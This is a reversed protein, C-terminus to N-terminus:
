LREKFREKYRRSLSLIKGNILKVESDGSNLPTISEVYDLNIAHSRHIRSFGKDTIKTILNTLTTRLPYIRGKIHLNVYNGASELWEVDDIKIIFEKGLKKVLLRDINSSESDNESEDESQAVPSAEGQLRSIIFNYGQIFIIFFIFSWLDKRYEYFLEFWIDGFNYNGSMFFYSVERMSVMLFVHSLSFVVSALFYYLLSLKLSQWSFPVRKLLQVIAPFLIVASIASSYEWVFPEWLQFPLVTYNRQGEMIVSTALLSNNIFFYCFLLGIEYSLKYKQFHQLKSM